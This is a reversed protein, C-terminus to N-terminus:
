QKLAWLLIAKQAHIRNEAEQFILSREGDAISAEVEEGRYLPLCHMFYAEPKALAMLAPTIRYPSLAKRKKEASKPDDSLSVWCDTTLVSAGQAAEKPSGLILNGGEKQAWDIAEKSLASHEPAAIALTFGFAPAAHVWSRMVNNSDGCWAIKLGEITGHQEKITMLAAIIQCPHSQNSLGNLVPITAKDALTGLRQHSGTRLMIADVYTSLVRATDEM